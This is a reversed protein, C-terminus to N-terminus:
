FFKSGGNLKLYVNKKNWLFVPLLLFLIIRLYISKKWKDDYVINSRLIKDKKMRNGYAIHSRTIDTENTINPIPEIFKFIENTAIQQNDCIKEYSIQIFDIDSNILLKKIRLNNKYWKLIYYPYSHSSIGVRECVKKISSVWGRVDRILFVCKLRIEGDKHMKNLVKVLRTTEKSSDILAFQDKIEVSNILLKYKDEYSLKQNNNNICKLVPSWVPCEFMSLGCGCKQETGEKTKKKKNLAHEVEGLSIVGTRKGLLLDLLTSGSHSLGVIYIVTKM